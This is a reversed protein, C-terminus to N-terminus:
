TSSAIMQRVTWPLQCSTSSAPGVPVGRQIWGCWAASEPLSELANVSLERARDLQEFSCYADDPMVTLRDWNAIVSMNDLKVQPPALLDIPVLVEM